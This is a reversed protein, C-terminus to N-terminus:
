NNFLSDLWCEWCFRYAKNIEYKGLQAKMFADSRGPESRVELVIGINTSGDVNTMDKGCKACKLPHKIGINGISISSGINDEM